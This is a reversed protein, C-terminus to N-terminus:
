SKTSLWQECCAPQFSDHKESCPQETVEPIIAHYDVKASRSSLRCTDTDLDPYGETSNTTLSLVIINRIRFIEYYNIM